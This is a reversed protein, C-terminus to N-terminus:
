VSQGAQVQKRDVVDNMIKGITISHHHIINEKMAQRKLELIERSHFTLSGMTRYLQGPIAM